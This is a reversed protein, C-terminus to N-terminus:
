AAAAVGSCRCRTSAVATIHVTDTGHMIIIIIQTNLHICASGAAGKHISTATRCHIHHPQLAIINSIHSRANHQMSGRRAVHYHQATHLRRSKIGHRSKM